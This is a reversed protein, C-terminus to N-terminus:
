FQVGSPWFIPHLYCNFIIYVEKKQSFKGISFRVGALSRQRKRSVILSVALVWPRLAFHLHFFQISLRYGVTASVLYM